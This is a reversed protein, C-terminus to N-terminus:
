KQQESMMPLVLDRRHGTLKAVVRVDCLFWELNVYPNSYDIDKPDDVGCIKCWRGNDIWQQRNMNSNMDSARDISSLMGEKIRALYGGGLEVGEEKMKERRKKGM